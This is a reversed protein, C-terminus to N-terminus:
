DDMGGYYVLARLEISERPESHEDSLQFATHPVTVVNAVFIHPTCVASPSKGPRTSTDTDSQLFLWAEHEMQDKCWWWTQSANRYMQRNEVVYDPYVLDCPELDKEEDVTKPDCM